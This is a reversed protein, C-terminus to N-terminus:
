STPKHEKRAGTNYRMNDTPAATLLGIMDQVTAIRSRGAKVFLSVILGEEVQEGHRHVFVWDMNKDKAQHRIM